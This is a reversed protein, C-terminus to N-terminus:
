ISFDAENVHHKFDTRTMTGCAGLFALLLCCCPSPPDELTNEMNSCLWIWSYLSTFNEWMEPEKLGELLILPPLPFPVGHLAWLYWKVKSTVRPLMRFVYAQNTQSRSLLFHGWRRSLVPCYILTNRHCRSLLETIRRLSATCARETVECSHGGVAAPVTINMLAPLSARSTSVALCSKLDRSWFNLRKTNLSSFLADLYSSYLFCHFCYSLKGEPPKLLHFLM